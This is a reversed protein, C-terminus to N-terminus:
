SAKFLLSIHIVTDESTLSPIKFWSSLTCEAILRQQSRNPERPIRKNGKLKPHSIPDHSSKGNWQYWSEIRTATIVLYIGKFPGGFSGKYSGM